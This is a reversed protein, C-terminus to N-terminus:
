MSHPCQKCYMGIYGLEADPSSCLMKAENQDPSWYQRADWLRLVMVKTPKPLVNEGLVLDGVQTGKPVKSRDSVAQFLKVTGARWKVPEDGIGEIVEGMRTVLALANAKYAEPLDAALAALKTLDM